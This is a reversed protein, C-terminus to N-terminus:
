NFLKLIWNGFSAKFNKGLHPVDLLPVTLSLEPDTRETEIKNKLSLFMQKNEEECDATIVLVARRICQQGQTIYRKCISVSSFISIQEDEICSTCLERNKYCNKCCSECIPKAEIILDSRKTEETCSKCM